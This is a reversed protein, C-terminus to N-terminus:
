KLPKRITAITNDAIGFTKAFDPNILVQDEPVDSSTIIDLELRKKGGIVIEAKDTIGLEQATKPNIVLKGEKVSENRKIRLRREKRVTM